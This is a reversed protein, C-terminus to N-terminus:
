GFCTLWFAAFLVVAGLIFFYFFLKERKQETGCFRLLSQGLMVIAACGATAWVHGRPDDGGHGSGLVLSGWYIGQVALAPLAILGAIAILAARLTTAALTIAWYGLLFIFAAICGVALIGNDNPNMLGSNHLVRGGTILFLAVPVGLSLVAAITACVALKVLWQVRASFPLTLQSVTLGMAKEEGLSICGALLSTLPAYLCTMVDFLFTINQRPRLLQFLVAAIWCLVFAASLQLVPKHLHLEKRVLNLVAGRPRCVLLETWPLKRGSAVSARTGEGLDRARLELRAFKRYGLWLSTGSYILATAALVFFTSSDLFPRDDGRLKAWGLAVVVTSLFESAVTFVLGGVISGAVLTWYGCSCVTVVLFCAAMFLTENDFTSRVEEWLEEGNYWNSMGALLAVEALVAATVAVTILLMKQSWIRSRSLPQTLLLPLTREQLEQGIGLTAVLAVGGFFGYTVFGTFMYEIADGMLLPKLGILSGAAVAGIWPLLLPRLEKTLQPNRSTM